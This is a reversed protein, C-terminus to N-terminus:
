SGLWGSLLRQMRALQLNTVEVNAEAAHITETASLVKQHAM